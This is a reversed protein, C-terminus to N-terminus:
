RKLALENEFSKEEQNSRYYTKIKDRTNYTDRYNCHRCGISLGIFVWMKRLSSKPILM